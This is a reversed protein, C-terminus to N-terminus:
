FERRACAACYDDYDFFSISYDDNVNLGDSGFGGVVVPYKGDVKEVCRTYTWPDQGYLREGTLDFVMLNLVIAELVSPMHCGKEEVMKKQTDYDKARSEPLVTKDILVWGAATTKEFQKEVSSSFFSFSDGKIETLAKLNFDKEKGDVRIRQPIYLLIKDKKSLNVEPAEPVTDLVEVNWVKWADAGYIL